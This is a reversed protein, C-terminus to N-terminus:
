GWDERGGVLGGDWNKEEGMREGGKGKGERTCRRSDLGHLRSM